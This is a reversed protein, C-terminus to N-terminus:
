GGVVDLVVWLAGAGLTMMAAPGCLLMAPRLVEADRPGSGIVCVTLATGVPWKEPSGSVESTLDVVDGGPHRFRVKPHWSPGYEDAISGRRVWGTVTGTVRAGQRLLRLSRQLGSLGTVMLGAAVLSFFGGVLWDLANM